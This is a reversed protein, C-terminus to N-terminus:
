VGTGLNPIRQQMDPVRADENVVRKLSGLAKKHSLELVAHLQRLTEAEPLEAHSVFFEEVFADFDNKYPNKHAFRQLNGYTKVLENFKFYEVVTDVEKPIAVYRKYMKSDVSGRNDKAPKQFLLCHDDKERIM